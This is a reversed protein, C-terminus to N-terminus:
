FLISMFNLIVFMILVIQGAISVNFAFASVNQCGALACFLPFHFPKSSGNKATEM